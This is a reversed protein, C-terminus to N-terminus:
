ASSVLAKNAQSSSGKDNRKDIHGDDKVWILKGGRKIDTHTNLSRALDTQQENLNHPIPTARVCVCPLAVNQRKQM